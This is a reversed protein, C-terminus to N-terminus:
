AAPLEIRVDTITRVQHIMAPASLRFPHKAGIIPDDLPAMAVAALCRAYQLTEFWEVVDLNIPAGVNRYIDVFRHSLSGTVARLPGQAWSPVAIPACQLLAATCGVDYERRCLCGNTWDLLNFSEDESVLMNFPHIDGHCVVLPAFPPRRGELWALLAGFDASTSGAAARIEALRSAPGLSDPDVGAATLSELIPQPDLEHLQTTAVSLQRAVRRLTKPLSLMTGGIKLGALLPAGDVREMVMFAGGLEADFGHLVVRPTPYGQDAVGRHVITEVVASKPNPMVRLVLPGGMGEPPDALEFSYIAAWFGGMMPTPPRSYAQSRGAHASLVRLLDDDIM